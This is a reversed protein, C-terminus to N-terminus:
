VKKWWVTGAVGDPEGFVETVAKVVGPFEPSYDHGCILIKVKPLWHVIDRKCAEYTHGADIFVMDVSKDKFDEVAELSDKKLVHINKFEKTNELFQAYVDEKKAVDSLYNEENGKWHDVAFVSGKCGSALAHTSRGKWSGIEVINKMAKANTYLFQMENDMMWGEIDPINYEPIQYNECGLKIEGIHHVQQSLDHDVYIKFGNKQAERCFYADEGLYSGNEFPTNFWPQKIKRFVDTKILCVGMGIIDVEQVGKQGTSIVSNNNIQATWKTQDTRQIYNAGIIDRDRSLLMKITDRPFMMDSDIFLIHSAGTELVAKASGERLQPILVGIIAAFSADPSTRLM